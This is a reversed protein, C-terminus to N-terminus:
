DKETVIASSTDVVRALDKLMFTLVRGDINIGVKGNSTSTFEIEYTYSNYTDEVPTIYTKLESRSM